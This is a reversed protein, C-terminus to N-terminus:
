SNSRNIAIFRSSDTGFGFDRAYIRNNTHGGMMTNYGGFVPNYPLLDGLPNNQFPDPLPGFLGGYREADGFANPDPVVNGNADTKLPRDSLAFVNHPLSLALSLCIVVGIVVSLKKNM